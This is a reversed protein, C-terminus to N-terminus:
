FRLIGSTLDGSVLAAKLLTVANADMGVLESTKWYAGAGMIMPAHQQTAGQEGILTINGSADTTCGYRLIGKPTQSGDVNGSAYARYTGPTATVEGLVTGKAFTTSAALKVNLIDVDDDDFIPDLRNAASWTTQPTTPM